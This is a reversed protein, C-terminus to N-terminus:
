LLRDAEVGLAKAIKFLTLRRVNKGRTMRWMTRKSIGAKDCAQSQNMQKKVLVAYLKNSDISSKM